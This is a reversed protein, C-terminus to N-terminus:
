EAEILESEELESIFDEAWKPINENTGYDTVKGDKSLKLFVVTSNEKAENDNQPIYSYNIKYYVVSNNEIKSIQPYTWNFSESKIDNKPAKFNMEKYINEPIVKKYDEYLMSYDDGTKCIQSLASNVAKAYNTGSNSIVNNGVFTLEDLNIKLTIKKYCLLDQIEATDNSAKYNEPTMMRIEVKANKTDYNTGLFVLPFKNLKEDLTIGSQHQFKDDCFSVNVSAYDNIDNGNYYIYIFYKEKGNQPKVFENYNSNEYLKIVFDDLIQTACENDKNAKIKDETYDSNKYEDYCYINTNDYHTVWCFNGGIFISCVISILLIIICAIKPSILKLRHHKQPNEIRKKILYKYVFFYFATFFATFLLIFIFLAAFYQLNILIFRFM